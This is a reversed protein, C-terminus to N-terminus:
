VRNVIFEDVSKLYKAPNGGVVSNPPVDKTVVSGAAIIVNSGIIVNGMIIEKAVIFVNDFIEIKYTEYPYQQGAPLNAIYEPVNNLMRHIVDHDVNVNNHIMINKPEVPLKRPFGIAIIRM